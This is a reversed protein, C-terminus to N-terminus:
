GEDGGVMAAGVREVDFPREFAAVVRGALMVLVRHCVEFMEELDASVVLVAADAAAAGVLAARVDRAAAIDLGRTPHAAILVRLDDTVERALITKQVNGGSLSGAQQEESRYSVKWRDLAEKCQRRLTKPWIIWGSRGRRTAVHNEWLSSSLSVGEVNREFPIVRLGRGRRERVSAESVDAEGLWISGSRAATVGVIAEVLSRQGNGEVGAIGVIEGQRIELSVDVASADHASSRASLGATRLEVPASSAPEHASPVDEISAGGIIARSLSAPDLDGIPTPEIILRGARLATATDAVGFVEQMKHLVVIVCMGEAALGRLREFLRHMAPPPLVATPEDLILVRPNSALARAIEVAQVTEIPLRGIVADPDVDTGAGALLTEARRRLRTRSFAGLLQPGDNFLEFCQAVTFDAPLAFHQHVLEVGHRRAEGVSGGSLLDEGVQVTGSLPEVLGALVRALTTKGAGNQGVLAHVRGPPFTATVGDLARFDGFEVSM